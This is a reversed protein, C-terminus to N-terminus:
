SPTMVVIAAMTSPASRSNPTSAVTPMPMGPTMLGAVPRTLFALVWASIPCGSSWSRAVSSSRGTRTSFSALQKASLRGGAGKGGRM